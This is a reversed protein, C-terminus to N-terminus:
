GILNRFIRKMPLYGINIPTHIIIISSSLPHSHGIAVQQLVMTIYTTAASEGPAAPRLDRRTRQLSRIDFDIAMGRHKRAADCACGAGVHRTVYDQSRHRKHFVRVNTLNVLWFYQALAATVCKNEAIKM